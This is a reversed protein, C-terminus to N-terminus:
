DDHLSTTKELVLAKGCQNELYREYNRQAMKDAEPSPFEQKIRSFTNKAGEVDGIQHQCSAKKTLVDRAEDAQLLNLEITEAIDLATSPRDIAMYYDVLHFKRTNEEKRNQPVFHLLERVEDLMNRELGETVLELVSGNDLRGDLYQGFLRLFRDTESSSCATAEEGPVDVPVPQDDPEDVLPEATDGSPAEPEEAPADAEAAPADVEAAPADTEAAPADAEMAPADAEVAPADAEAAPADVEAAPADVEAAPADAEAAPAPHVDSQEAASDDTTTAEWAEETDDAAAPTDAPATDREDDVHFFLRAGADRLSDALSKVSEEDIGSATQARERGTPVVDDRVPAERGTEEDAAPRAQDEVTQLTGPPNETQPPEVSDDLDELPAVDDETGQGLISDSQTELWSDDAGAVDGHSAPEISGDAGEEEWLIDPARNRTAELTGEELGPEPASADEDDDDLPTPVGTLPVRDLEISTTKSKAPEDATREASNDRPSENSFHFETNEFHEFEAGEESQAAPQQKAAHEDHFDALRPDVDKHKEVIRLAAPVDNPSSAAIAGFIELARDIDGTEIAMEGHFLMVETPLFQEKSKTELWQYVDDRHEECESIKKLTDLVRRKQDALLAADMYLYHLLLSESENEVFPQILNLVAPAKEPNNSLSEQLIEGARVVDGKVLMIEVLAEDLSEPPTEFKEALDRLRSLADDAIKPELKVGQVLRSMAKDYQQAAILSCAYAFRIRGAKPFRKELDAFFPELIENEVPKDDLIELFSRVSEKMRGLRLCLLGESMVNIVTESKLAFGGREASNLTQKKTRTRQLLERITRDHLPELVELAGTLERRKISLELLFKGLAPDRLSALKERAFSDLREKEHHFRAHAKKLFQTAQLSEGGELCVDAAEIYLEFEDPAKALAEKLRSLARQFNGRAKDQLAKELTSTVKSDM